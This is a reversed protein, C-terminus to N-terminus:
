HLPRSEFEASLPVGVTEGQLEVRERRLAPSSIRVRTPVLGVPGLGTGNSWEPVGAVIYTTQSRKFKDLSFFYAPVPIRVWAERFPSLMELAARKVM